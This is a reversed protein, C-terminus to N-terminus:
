GGFKGASFENEAEVPFCIEDTVNKQTDPHKLSFAFVCFASLDCNPISYNGSL